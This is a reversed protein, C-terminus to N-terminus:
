YVKVMPGIRLIYSATAYGKVMYMYKILQVLPECIHFRSLSKDGDEKQMLFCAFIEQEFNRLLKGIWVFISTTYHPGRIARVNCFEKRCVPKLDCHVYM